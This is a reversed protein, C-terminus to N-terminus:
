NRVKFIIKQRYFSRVPKGDVIAPSYRYQRIAAEASAEFIGPPDAKLLQVKEVNGDLGVVIRFEVTGGLGQRQALRPYRPTARSLLKARKDVGDEKFVLDNPNLGENFDGLTTVTDWDELMNQNLNIASPLTLKPLAVSLASAAQFTPPSQLPTKADKTIQDLKFHIRKLASEKEEPQSIENLWIISSLLLWNVGLAVLTAVVYDRPSRKVPGAGRCSWRRLCWRPHM